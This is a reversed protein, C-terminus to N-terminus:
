NKLGVYLDVRGGPDNNEDIGHHVEFDTKYARDIAHGDELSWVHQWLKLVVNVAPVGAGTYFAYEGAPVRHSVMGRPIAGDSSVKAGLFYTYPGNRDSKYNLYLAYTDNGARNKLKRLVGDKRVHAIVEAIAGKSQLERENSTRREIGVVTFADVQRTNQANLLLCLSPLSMSIALINVLAPKM